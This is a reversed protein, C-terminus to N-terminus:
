LKNLWFNYGAFDADPGSNPDRRLYGFYQMLVFARTFEHQALAPNESVRRMARARAAADNTTEAGEFENIAKARDADTPTEGANSFLKNVFDSPSMTTQYASTFRPRQIFEAFYSQQNNELVEEWGNQNVIVGQGIRETDPLFEARKIPVPANPIDGYAALYTRYVLYGTQQFEISLFFAASTNIRQIERCNQDAGCSDVNNVWFNFGPGDPERNLFDLYQQRVFYGT